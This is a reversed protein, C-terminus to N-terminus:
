GTISSIKFLYSSTRTSTTGVDYCLMQENITVQSSRLRVQEARDNLRTCVTWLAGLSVPFKSHYQKLLLYPKIVAMSFFDFIFCQFYSKRKTWRSDLQTFMGSQFLPLRHPVGKPLLQLSFSKVYPLVILRLRDGLKHSLCYLGHLARLPPLALGTVPLRQIPEGFQLKKCVVEKKSRSAKQDKLIKGLTHTTAISIM